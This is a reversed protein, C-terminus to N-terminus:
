VGGFAATLGVNVPAGGLYPSPCRSYSNAYSYDYSLSCGGITSMAAYGTPNTDIISAAMSVAATHWAVMQQAIATQEGAARSAQIVIVQTLGSILCIALTVFVLLYMSAM